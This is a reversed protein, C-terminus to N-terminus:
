ALGLTKEQKMIGASGSTSSEATEGTGHRGTYWWEEQWSLLPSFRQVQLNLGLYINEKILTAMTM